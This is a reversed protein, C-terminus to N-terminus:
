ANELQKQQHKRVQRPVKLLDYAKMRRRIVRPECRGPRLPVLLLEAVGNLGKLREALYRMTDIFSTRWVTVGRGLAYRLM